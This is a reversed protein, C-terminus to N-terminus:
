IWQKLQLSDNIISGTCIIKILFNESHYIMPILLLLNELQIVIYIIQLLYALVQM